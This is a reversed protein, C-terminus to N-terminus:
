NLTIKPQEVLENIPDGQQEHQTVTIGALKLALVVIKTIYTLDLHGPSDDDKQCVFAFRLLFKSTPSIETTQEM